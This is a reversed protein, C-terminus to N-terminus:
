WYMDIELEHVTPKRHPQWVNDILYWLYNDPNVVSSMDKEQERYNSQVTAWNLGNSPKLREIKM